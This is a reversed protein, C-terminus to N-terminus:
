SKSLLVALSLILSQQSTDLHVQLWLPLLRKTQLWLLQTHFHTAVARRVFVDVVSLTMMYSELDPFACLYTIREDGDLIKLNVNQNKRDTLFM